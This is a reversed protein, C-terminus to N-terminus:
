SPLMLVPMTEPRSRVIWAGLPKVTAWATWVSAASLGPLEPPGITSEAPTMPMASWIAVLPEASCLEPTPKATGISRTFGLEGGELGAPGDAM